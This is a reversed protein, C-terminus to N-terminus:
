VDLRNDKKDTDIRKFIVNAMIGLWCISVFFVINILASNCGQPRQAVSCDSSAFNSFIFYYFGAIIAAFWLFFISRKRSETQRVWPIYAAVIVAAGILGIGLSIPSLLVPMILGAGDAMKGTDSYFFSTVLPYLAFFGCVPFLALKVLRGAGNGEISAWWAAKDRL